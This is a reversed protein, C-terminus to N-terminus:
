RLGVKPALAKYLKVTYFADQSNYRRLRKPDATWAEKTNKNYRPDHHESKWPPVLFEGAVARQLGHRYQRYAIGHLLMTDEVRGGVPYGKSALYPVDFSANHAVKVGPMALIAGALKKVFPSGGPEEEDGGAIPFPEWPISACYDGCALGLATIINESPVTEIDFALPEGSRHLGEIRKLIQLLKPGTGYSQLHPEPQLIHARGQVYANAGQFWRRIQHGWVYEHNSPNLMPMIPSYPGDWITGALEPLSDPANLADYCMTGRLNKADGIDEDKMKIEAGRTAMVITLPFSSDKLFKRLEARKNGRNTAIFAKRMKAQKKSPGAAVAAEQETSLTETDDGYDYLSVRTTRGWAQRGLAAKGFGYERMVAPEGTEAQLERDYKFRVDTVICLGSPNRPRDVFITM